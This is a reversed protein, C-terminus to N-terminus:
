RSCLTRLLPMLFVAFLGALVYVVGWWFNGVVWKENLDSEPKLDIGIEKWAPPRAIEGAEDDTAPIGYFYNRYRPVVATWIRYFGFPAFAPVISVFVSVATSFNWSGLDNWVHFSLVRLILVFYLLPLLNLLIVSLWARRRSHPDRAAAGWAFAKWRPQANAATGWIIAYFLMFVQQPVNLQLMSLTYVLGNTHRVEFRPENDSIRLLM